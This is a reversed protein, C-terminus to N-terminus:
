TSSQKVRGQVPNLKRGNVHTRLTASPRFTISKHPDIPVEVRTKPNGGIREGKDRVTFVGFGSLKVSEGTELAASIQGLVQSVLEASEARSLGLTQRVTEGLEARTITKGAM